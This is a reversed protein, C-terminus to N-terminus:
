GNRKDIELVVAFSNAEETLKLAHRGPYLLALRQKINELGIGGSEPAKQSQAEKSNSSRFYIVGNREELALSIFGDLAHHINGHKFCNEVLPILIMPEILVDPSSLSSTFIIRLPVESKLQYLSILKKIQDIEKTLLVQDNKSEYLAYRLVDSLLLVMETAQPARGITLSYINNLSNFLFHPSMQAKLFNLQQQQQSLIILQYEKEKRSRNILLGYFFSIALVMLTSAGSFLYKWSTSVPYFKLYQSLYFSNVAFRIYTVATVLAILIFIYIVYKQKEIFQNVFYINAYYGVVLMGVNFFSFAFAHQPTTVNSVFITTILLIVIWVASNTVLVLPKEKLKQFGDAFFDVVDL